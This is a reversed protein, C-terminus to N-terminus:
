PKQSTVPRGNADTVQVGFRWSGRENVVLLLLSNAGKRGQVVLGGEGKKAEAPKGNFWYKAASDASCVLRLEEAKELTVTAHAYGIVYDGGGLAAALDVKKASSAHDKWNATLGEVTVPKAPDIRRAAAIEDKATLVRRKWAFPGALRWRTIHGLRQTIETRLAADTVRGAVPGLEAILRAATDADTLSVTRAVALRLRVMADFLKPDTSQYSGLIPALAENWDRQIVGLSDPSGIATMIALARLKVNASVVGTFAAHSAARAVAVNKNKGESAAKARALLAEAEDAVLQSRAAVPEAIVDERVVEIFSVIPADAKTPKENGPVLEVVLDSKVVIGDFQTVTAKGAGGAAKTIDFGKVVTKGQVKIDFARQGAKDGRPAAFGLRLTYRGPNEGLLPNVLPLELRLLGDCGSGFLWPRETGTIGADRFERDFAGMGEIVKMDVSLKLGYPGYGVRSLAVPRPYALWLKGDKDRTDGRAGLNLALQKVPTTAGHSIFVTADNVVRRPKHVLAVSARVPYSCTCGASAEPMLMVGGASIMNIWCGPRIGGFLNLGTDGAVDLIAGCSSRYFLSSASASTVSCCHGPRLFEWPVSRGTIPHRRMKIKGTRLDCARPEIIVDDGVILPRRLYNLPKSWLAYGNTADLATIRRWTLRNQLFLGTDHNSFHGFMLVVGRKVALGMLDGGCGSADVPQRWLVEGTALKVAVVVRIDAKAPPLDVSGVEYAKKATADVKWQYGAAQENVNAPQEVFYVVGKEVAVAINPIAGGRHRWLVRGTKADIAFLSDAAKARGSVAGEPTPGSGWSAYRDIGRWFRGRRQFERHADANPKPWQARLRKLYGRHEAAVDDLARWKDGEADAFLKWLHAYENTLPVASTGLLIDGTAGLYGWRRPSGDAARPPTYTRTINGTAPDLQHCKDGVAVYLAAETLTLNGGDADARIRVAGPIARQWLPTGNYADYAMIIEAGQVFLRGDMSVPAAARAHREVMRRGGPEGYWLLGFPGKVLQDESCSTNGLNGYLGTWSGAGELKGRVIKGSVVGRPDSGWLLVSGGGPRLMHRWEKGYDAETRVKVQDGSVILNAFYEPMDGPNWPEVVVRSGYLGTADVIARVEALKAPDKEIVIIKLDTRKALELVLAGGGFDRVVCFGKTIGTEKIILDAASRTAEAAPITDPQKPHVTTSITKVKGRGQPGFCYVRGRDTSVFLRGDAVAFGLARGEVKTTWLIKDTKADLALVVGEGGAFLTEGARMLCALGRRRFVRVKEAPKVAPAKAALADQEKRLAAMKAALEKSPLPVKVPAIGRTVFGSNVWDAHDFGYNNNRGTTSVLRLQQAGKPIPVYLNWTRDPRRITPTEALMKGDAFVQFGISGMSLAADDLGVTAVFAKYEPNLSYVIESYSHTGIGKAFVVGGISLPRGTVARNMQPAGWGAIAKLAKLDALHIDPMPITKPFGVARMAADLQFVIRQREADSSGIPVVAQKPAGRDVTHIGTRTVVHTQEPTVLIDIGQPAWKFADGVFQGTEADYALKDPVGSAETGAILQGGALLAWTGGRKGPVIAVYHLRGTKRNFAFPMARGSPVYLLSKSALLYGHPSLGGYQLQHSRAGISDNKWIVAGDKADLCFIYLGEFPFVGATGLVQGSDVIVSTRIPWTSIMRGNGIVKSNDPGPRFKWALKGTKADLCYVHGDDSGFYLRGKDISPAFRIPGEATFTWRIAGVGVNVAILKDTVSSAFYAIGDAAVLHYANDVHARPIEESTKPWAPKPPHVPEFTWQPWLPVRINEATVGSRSNDGRYTPWNAASATAVVLILCLCM